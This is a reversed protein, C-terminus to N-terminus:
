AAVRCDRQVMMRSMDGSTEALSASMLQLSLAYLIRDRQLQGDLHVTFAGCPAQDCGFTTGIKGLEDRLV